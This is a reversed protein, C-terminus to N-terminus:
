RSTDHFVWSLGAFLITGLLLLYFLLRNRDTQQTVVAQLQAFNPSSAKAQLLNSEELAAFNVSFSALRKSDEQLIQYSGTPLDQLVQPLESYEAFPKSDRILRYKGQVQAPLIGLSIEEGSRFNSRAMGPLAQRCEEVIAQVLLPWAPQRFLNTRQRDINFVLRQPANEAGSELFVLPQDGHSIYSHLAKAPTPIYPWLVGEFSLQDTLRSNHDLLLEAGQAIKLSQTSDNNAPFVYTRLAKPALDAHSQRAFVVNAQKPDGTVRAYPLAGVAKEMFQKLEPLGDDLLVKIEKIVVPELRVHNDAALADDDIRIEVPKDLLELDFQLSAAKGPELTLAKRFVETSAGKDGAIDGKLLVNANQKAHSRLTLVVRDAKPSIRMRDASAIAVNADAHGVAGVVLFDSYAKSSEDTDSLFLVREKGTAFKSALNVASEVDCTLSEPTWRKMADFIEQRSAFPGALLKPRAGAAVLTFRDKPKAWKEVLKVAREACSEGKSRAQMSLSDDLLITFHRMSSKEPIDLGAILLALLLAALLQSALSLSRTLREFRRGVPLSTRAFDWLHLGGIRITRRRDRFFHLGVIVPLALLALLGIPNTFIM